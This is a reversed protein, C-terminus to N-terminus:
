TKEKNRIDGFKVLILRSPSGKKMCGARLKLPREGEKMNKNNTTTKLFKSKERDEKQFKRSTSCGPSAPENRM